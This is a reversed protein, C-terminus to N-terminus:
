LTELDTLGEFLTEPGIRPTSGARHGAQVM